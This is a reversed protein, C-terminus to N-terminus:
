FLPKQGEPPIPSGPAIDDPSNKRMPGRGYWSIFIGILGLIWPWWSYTGDCFYKAWIIVGIATILVPFIWWSKDDDRKILAYYGLLILTYVALIILTVWFELTTCEKSDTSETSQTNENQTATVVPEAQQDNTSNNPESTVTEGLVHGISDSTSVSVAKVVKIETTAEISGYSAHLITTGLKMGKINGEATFSTADGVLTLGAQKSTIENGDADFLKTSINQTDGVSLTFKESPSLLLTAPTGPTVVVPVLIKLGAIRATVVFSGTKKFAYTYGILDANKETSTFSTQGTANWTNGYADKLKTAFSITDDATAKVTDPTVLLTVPSSHVVNVYATASYLGVSVPIEWQGVYQTTFTNHNLSGGASVPIDFSATTTVDSTSSDTKHAIVKWTVTEGAMVTTSVPSVSIHDVTAAASATGSLLAWFFAASGLGFLFKKYTM